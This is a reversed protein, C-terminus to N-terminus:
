EPLFGLEYVQTAMRKSFALYKTRFEKYEAPFYPEVVKKVQAWGADWSALHYEPNTDHMEKRFPISKRLLDSALDIIEKADDSLKGYLGDQPSYILNHVYRDKGARAHDRLDQYLDDFRHEEALALMENQSLWFFENFINHQTGKYTIDRLSSQQSASNFLSFVVSDTEFQKYAPTQIMADTPASYEDKENTWNPFITRRATYLTCVKLINEPLISVGHANVAPSSVLFVLTSNFQCINANSVAYGLAGCALMGRGAQKVSCASSLQPADFTKLGKVEERLWKSAQIGNDLNALSKPERLHQVALFNDADIDLVDVSVSVPTMAGDGNKEETVKNNNWMIFLVPWSGATDAFHKASFMFGKAFSFDKYWEKRFEKFSGGTLYLAPSFLNIGAPKFSKARYMFQTYLNNVSKGYGAALMEDRLYSATTTGGKVQDKSLGTSAAYPPNMLFLVKKGEALALRLGEPLKDDSDNLFDFQFKAKAEKNYGIQDITDIDSQEITSLYLNKFKYDRTLNATGCAPDWVVYEEKWNEGYAETIYKHAEAVFQPPTFYEGKARRTGEEVLRDVLATLAEKEKPSYDDSNFHGFFSKAESAVLAVNGYSRTVLIGRKTPHLYNDTQNILIQIFLNAKENPSLAPKKLVRTNFHEFVAVVNKPTIRIRHNVEKTLGAVRGKMVEKTFDFGPTAVDYVFPSVGEDSSIAMVLNPHKAAAESPAVADWSVSADSLYKIIQNAHIVFCENIDGVLITTPLDEGAREFAKMYFLCQVLVKSQELKSKLNFQHKFEVLMRVKDNDNEYLGDCRHPSSLKGGSIKSIAARYANEVDKENLAISLAQQLQVTM